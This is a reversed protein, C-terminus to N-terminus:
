FAAHSRFVVLSFLFISEFLFSPTLHVIFPDPFGNLSFDLGFCGASQRYIAATSASSACRFQFLFFLSLKVVNEILTFFDFPNSCFSCSTNFMVTMYESFLRRQRAQVM